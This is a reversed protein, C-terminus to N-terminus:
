PKSLGALIDTLSLDAVATVGDAAGYYIRVLDGDNVLGCTFVVGDFFGSKEYDAEPRLIPERSRGVVISPDDADLLLAGLSYTMPSATVGHYVALWGDYGEQRVRFPVAGGGIKLNDWSDCRAGAVYRHNGWSKLDPSSAIWIAHEGPEGAMPRHLAFYRGGIKEPFITVDRNPPPFIIGHRDFTKFDTTSALATSIGRPSVATYNIWYTGDISTIRPDEIGFSEYETAASMAPASDVVFNIGDSSRALRFHSISTLWTKGAVVTVRPDATNVDESNRMWTRIEINRSEVNYIPASVKGDSRPAAEAVRLMLITEDGLRIAAPNFAGVVELDPRSSRVM